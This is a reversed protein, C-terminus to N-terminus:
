EKKADPCPLVNEPKPRYEQGIHVRTISLQCEEKGPILKAWPARQGVGARM